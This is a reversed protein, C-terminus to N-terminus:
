KYHGSKYDYGKSHGLKYRGLENALHKLTM